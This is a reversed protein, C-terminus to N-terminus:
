EARAGHQEEAKRVMGERLRAIDDANSGPLDPLTM